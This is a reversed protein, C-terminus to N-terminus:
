MFRDIEPNRHADEPSKTQAPFSSGKKASASANIAAQKKMRATEAGIVNSTSLMRKASKVVSDFGNTLTEKAGDSFEQASQNIGHAMSNNGDHYKPRKFMAKHENLSHLAPSAQTQTKAFTPAKGSTSPSSFSPFLTKRKQVLSQHEM